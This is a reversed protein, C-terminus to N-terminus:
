ANLLYYHNHSLYEKTNQQTIQIWMNYPNLELMCIKEMKINKLQFTIKKINM